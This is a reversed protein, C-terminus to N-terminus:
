PKAAPLDGLMQKLRANNPDLQLLRMLADRMLDQNKTQEGLLLRERHLSTQFRQQHSAPWNDPMPLDGAAALLEAAQDWRRHQRALQGLVFVPMPHRPSEGRAERLLQVATEVDSNSLCILALLVRPPHTYPALRQAASCRGLADAYKKEKGDIEALKLYVASADPADALAAQCAARARDLAGRRLLLDALSLRADMNGPALEVAKAVASEAEAYEQRVALTKGLGLWALPYDRDLKVAERLKAEAGATDGNLLLAMGLSTVPFVERQGSRLREELMAVAKSPQGLGVYCAAVAEKSWPNDPHLDLTRGHGTLQAKLEYRRYDEMLAARQDEHTPTVQLYVDAMEDDANSGYAVRRAPRHRNRPNGDSNDYTFTSVLKTGRPLRVPTRYRYLDHWNEDFKPISILPERKGDPLEADLSLSQCLSHAHPFIGRLDVDVPLTYSDTIVHRKAGAPIDVDCSGLRLIAPYREPADQAFRIGVRFRVAEAKGSPQLHAHLVLVSHPFLRWAVGPTDPAPSMGPAWIVLQGDPDQGWAMGDYGPAPDEADRRPSENTADVGLRAHHTVRLNTPRLEISRVWRPQDLGTRVVFNRFVDGGGAALQFDPTELVLDPPDSEWRDVAAAPAPVRSLDGPAMGTEAWRKLTALEADSLRRDHAFTGHGLEPLWPPMFRRQTVEVIQRARKHVDDFTLLSFPAADGPRHCSACRAQVIPAVDRAYTVGSRTFYYVGGTALLLILLAAARPWRGPSRWRRRQQWPM